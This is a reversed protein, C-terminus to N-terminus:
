RALRESIRRRFKAFTASSSSIFCSSRDSEGLYTWSFRNKIGLISIRPVIPFRSSLPHETVISRCVLNESYANSLVSKERVLYKRPNIHVPSSQFSLHRQYSCTYACDKRRWLSIPKGLMARMVAIGERRAIHFYKFIRPVLTSISRQRKKEDSSVLYFSIPVFLRSRTFLSRWLVLSVRCLGTDERQRSATQLM